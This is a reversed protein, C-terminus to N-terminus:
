HNHQHNDAAGNKGTRPSGSREILDTRQLYFVLFSRGDGTHMYVRQGSDPRALVASAIKLVFEGTNSM